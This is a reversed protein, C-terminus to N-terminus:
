RSGKAIDIPYGAVSNDGTTRVLRDPLGSSQEREPWNVAPFHRAPRAFLYGQLYDCGLGILTDREARTEVGEAIVQHGMDRSLSALSAVLKQKVPEQDVNRILTMDLKTFEPELMAISNLGAYGAGLDDVALRFGVERLQSIRRRLGDINLLSARETIELVVRDAISALASNGAALDPDLLDSPHLNVFLMSANGSNLLPHAARKRVIRGLLHISDLHEAANLVLEPEYLISDDCRLLAEYGFISGDSAHVIPQYAIWLADLANAFQAQLRGINSSENEVGLRLLSDRKIKANCYHRVAREVTIALVGPDVPKVLYMFAGYEVAEAASQISPVGTVLVVPLDPDHQRFIRLLELGSMEPMSIDSVVAMVNDNALCDIAQHPTLCSTVSYGSQGLSQELWQLIAPEDDVVLVTGTQGRKLIGSNANTM